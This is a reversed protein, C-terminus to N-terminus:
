FKVGGGLRVTNLNVNVAKINPFQVFEYEGRVFVNPMVLMDIGVGATYGFALAGTQNSTQTGPLVLNSTVSQPTSIPILAGTAPDVVYSTVTFSDTRSATVTASRDVNARAVAVGAFGYPMFNGASWGGRARLTAFDTLTISAKASVTADYTYDHGAPANSNDLFSRSMSDSASKSLSTHTYSAELGLTVDDWQYNYGVFGGFGTGSTDGRSLTTWNTVHNQLISNRVAFDILSRVSTGFDIGAISGSIQGGGYFGSWRTYIPPAAVYQSPVYDDSAGRLVPMEFEGASADSVFGILAVAVLLRRM